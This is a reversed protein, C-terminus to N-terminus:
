MVILRKGSQGTKISKLEEQTETLLRAIRHWQWILALTINMVLYNPLDMILSSFMLFTEIPINFSYMAYFVLCFIRTLLLLSCSILIAFTSWSQYVKRVVCVGINFTIMAFCDVAIFIELYNYWKQMGSNNVM